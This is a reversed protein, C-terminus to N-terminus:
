HGAEAVRRYDRCSAQGTDRGNDDGWGKVIYLLLEAIEICFNMVRSPNSKTGSRSAVAMPGALTHGLSKM